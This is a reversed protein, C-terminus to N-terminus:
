RPSFEISQPESGPEPPESEIEPEMIAMLEWFQAIAEDTSSASVSQTFSDPGYIVRCLVGNEIFEWLSYGASAALCRPPSWERAMERWATWFAKTLRQEHLLEEQDFHIQGILEAASRCPGVNGKPGYGWFFTMRSGNGVQVDISKWPFAHLGRRWQNLSAQLFSSFAKLPILGTM